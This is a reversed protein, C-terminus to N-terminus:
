KKLKSNNKSKSKKKSTHPRIDSGGVGDRCAPLYNCNIACATLTNDNTVIRESFPKRKIKFSRIIPAKCTFFEHQM